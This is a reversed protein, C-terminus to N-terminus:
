EPTDDETEKQKPTPKPAPKKEGNKGGRKALLARMKPGYQTNLSKLASSDLVGTIGGGSGPTADAPSMWSAKHQIQGEYTEQKVQIQVIMGSPPEGDFIAFNGDWDISDGLQTVNTQNEVGKSDLVYWTGWCFAEEYQDWSEWKQDEEDPHYQDLILFKMTIGVSKSAGKGRRVGWQKIEARFTGQRDLNM